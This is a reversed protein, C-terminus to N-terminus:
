KLHHLSLSSIEATVSRGECREEAFLMKDQKEWPRSYDHVFTRKNSDCDCAKAKESPLLETRQQAVHKSLFSIFDM